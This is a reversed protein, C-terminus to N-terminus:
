VSMRSSKAGNNVYAARYKRQRGRKGGLDPVPVSRMHFGAPLTRAVRPLFILWLDVASSKCEVFSIRLITGLVMLSGLADFGLSKM